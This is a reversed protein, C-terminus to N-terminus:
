QIFKLMSLSCTVSLGFSINEDGKCVGNVFRDPITLIDM